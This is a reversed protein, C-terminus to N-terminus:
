GSFCVMAEFTMMTVPAERPLGASRVGGVKCSTVSPQEGCADTECEGVEEELFRLGGFEDDNSAALLRKFLQLSLIGVVLDM